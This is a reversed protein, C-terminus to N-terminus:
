YRFRIALQVLRPDGVVTVQGFNPAPNSPYAGPGASASSIRAANSCARLSAGVGAVGTSGIDSSRTSHSCM